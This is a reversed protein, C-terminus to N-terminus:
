KALRPPTTVGYYAPGAGTAGPIQYNTIFHGQIADHEGTTVQTIKFGAIAVIDKPSSLNTNNFEVVVVAVEQAPRTPTPDFLDFMTQYFLPPNESQLYIRDSIRLSTPNRTTILDAIQEPEGNVEFSTSLGSTCQLGNTGVYHRDVGLKIEWPAGVTQVTGHADTGGQGAAVLSAQQTIPNWFPTDTFMCKNIVLPLLIGSPIAGPSPLVAVAAASLSVGSSGFLTSFLPMLQGGNKDPAKTITVKVAPVYDSGPATTAESFDSGSPATSFLKWYGVQVSGDDESALALHDATNKSLQDLAKAKARAWNLTNQKMALCETNSDPHSSRNLCAAGALAAADAGNQLESKVIFLRTVNLALLAFGIMAVLTVAAMVM